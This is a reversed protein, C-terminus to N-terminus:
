NLMERAYIALHLLLCTLGTLADAVEGHLARVHLHSVLCDFPIEVQCAHSSSVTMM